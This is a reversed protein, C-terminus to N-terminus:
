KGIGLNKLLELIMQIIAIIQAFDVSEATQAAAPNTASEHIADLTAGLVGFASMVGAKLKAPDVTVATAQKVWSTIRGGAQMSADAIPASMELAQRFSEPSLGLKGVSDVIAAVAVAEAKDKLTVKSIAVVQQVQADDVPPAPADPTKPAGNFGQIIVDAELPVWAGPIGNKVEAQFVGNPTILLIPRDAMCASATLLLSFLLAFVRLMEIVKKLFWIV